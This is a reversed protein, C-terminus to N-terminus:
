VIFEPYTEKLLDEAKNPILEFSIYSVLILVTFLTCAVLLLYPNTLAGNSLHVTSYMQSLLVLGTASAQRFIIEELLWKKGSVDQRKKYYRNLKFAKYGSYTAALVYLIVSFSEAYESSFSIYLIFFISITIVIQPIRFWQKLEQWLYKRYRKGMAKQKQEIPEMFGFIGFKKFAKDRADEFCLKPNETWMNEIDNALHDVLETQLDYYEVFHKRTFAYLDQIQSKNLKM